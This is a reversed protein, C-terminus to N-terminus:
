CKINFILFHQTTVNGLDSASVTGHRGAALSFFTAGIAGNKTDSLYFRLETVGDNEILLQATAEVTREVITYMMLKKVHGQFLMQMINRITTLDFFQGILIKNTIFHQMLAGLDNYKAECMAVRATELENSKVGTAKISAKQKNLATTILTFFDDVATKVATLAADAGIALSLSGIAAIREEQTGVQFPRHGNPFLANYRDSGKAYVVQIAADWANVTTKRLLALLNTLAITDSLQQGKQTKWATYKSIYNLHVVEYVNFLALIFLDAISAKLAAYHIRSVRLGLRFSGQTAIEIIDTLFIWLRRM